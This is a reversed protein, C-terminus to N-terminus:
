EIKSGTFTGMNSGNNRFAATTSTPFAPTTTSPLAEWLGSLTKTSLNLNGVWTSAGARGSFCTGTTLNGSITDGQSTSGTVTGDPNVTMTWTGIITGGSNRFAATTTSASSAAATSNTVATSDTAIDLTGSYTGAYQAYISATMHSVAQDVSVTNIAPAVGAMMREFTSTDNSFVNPQPLTSTTIRAPDITMNGASDMRSVAMLFRVINIVQPSGVGAYPDNAMALHVPTIIDGGPVEGLVIGKVSFKVTKGAEYTFTGDATTTGSQSGSVYYLGGVPGDVFKGTPIGPASSGGGCGSILTCFATI